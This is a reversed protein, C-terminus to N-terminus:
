LPDRADALKRKLPIKNSLIVNLSKTEMVKMGELRDDGDLYAPKGDEGLNPDINSEYKDIWEEFRILFTIKLSM